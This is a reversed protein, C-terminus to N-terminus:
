TMLVQALLIFRSNILCRPKSGLCVPMQVCVSVCVCMCVCSPTYHALQEQSLVCLASCSHFWSQSLPMLTISPLRATWFQIQACLTKKQQGLLCRQLRQFGSQVSHSSDISFLAFCESLAQTCKLSIANRLDQFRVPKYDAQTMSIQLFPM